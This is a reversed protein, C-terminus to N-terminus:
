FCFSFDFKMYFATNDPTNQIRWLDATTLFMKVKLTEALPTVDGTIVHASNDMQTVDPWSSWGSNQGRVVRSWPIRQDGKRKEWHLETSSASNVATTINVKCTRVLHWWHCHLKNQKWRSMLLLPVLVESHVDDECEETKRMKEYNFHHWLHLSCAAKPLPEAAGIIGILDWRRVHASKCTTNMLNFSTQAALLAVLAPVCYM